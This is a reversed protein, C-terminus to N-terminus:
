WINNDLLKILPLAFIFLWPAALGVQEQRAGVYYLQVDENLSASM